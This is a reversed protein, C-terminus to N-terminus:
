PLRTVSLKPSMANAVYLPTQYKYGISNRFFSIVIIWILSRGTYMVPMDIIIQESSVKLVTLFLDYISHM